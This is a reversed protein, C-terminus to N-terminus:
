RGAGGGRTGLLWHETVSTRLLPVADPAGRRGPQRNIEKSRAEQRM